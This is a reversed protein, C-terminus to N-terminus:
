YSTGSYVMWKPTGGHSQFGGFGDMDPIMIGPFGCWGAMFRSVASTHGLHWRYRCKCSSNPWARSAPVYGVVPLIQYIPSPFDSKKVHHINTSLHHVMNRLFNERHTQLLDHFKWAKHWPLKHRQALQTWHKCDHFWIVRIWCHGAKIPLIMMWFTAPNWTQVETSFLFSPLLSMHMGPLLCVYLSTYKKCAVEFWILEPPMNWIKAKCTANATTNKANSVWPIVGHFGGNRAMSFWWLWQIPKLSCKCFFAGYKIPFDM